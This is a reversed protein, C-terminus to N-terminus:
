RRAAVQYVIFPCPPLALVPECKQPLYIRVVTTSNISYYWRQPLQRSRTHRGVVTSEPLPQSYKFTAKAGLQDAVSTRPRLLMAPPCCAGPTELTQMACRLLRATFLIDPIISAKRKEFVYIPLATELTGGGFLEAVFFFLFIPTSRSLCCFETVNARYM